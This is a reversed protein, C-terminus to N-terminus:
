QFAYCDMAMAGRLLSAHVREGKIRGDPGGEGAAGLAVHFPLFHEETPHNERAFPARSRYATLDDVAGHAVRDAIWDRFDTVWAPPRDSEGTSQRLLMANHSATGSGIVLIGDDRLPALARGIAVHHAAGLQPQVSIQVVPVDAEPYLLMLPGWTGHDFGRGEVVVPALGAQHLLGGARLALEPDGPAPYVMRYLEDPFGYFDYIMDPRVDATIVPRAAAFHASALVIGRPKGLVKGYGSLFDRLASPEVVMMPSGHSIYLSPFTM